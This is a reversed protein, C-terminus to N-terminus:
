CAELDSKLILLSNPIPNHCHLGLEAAPRDFQVLVRPNDPPTEIVAGREGILRWYNEDTRCDPPTSAAGNFARLIVRTGPTLTNPAPM